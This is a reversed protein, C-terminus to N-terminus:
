RPEPDFASPDNAVCDSFKLTMPAAAAPFPALADVFLVPPVDDLPPSKLPIKLLVPSMKPAATTTM